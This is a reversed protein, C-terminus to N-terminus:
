IGLRYGDGRVTLIYTPKQPDVEVIKRLEHIRWRALDRAEAGMVEYGQAEKVLTKYTVTRPAYRVLTVLYDFYIGSVPLYKNNLLAHRAHLDLSFPGKELFRTTETPPVAALASTPTADLGELQQLEKLLHQIQTVVERKRAPQELEDFISRVRDILAPPDIPKLLYDRAGLRVAQIASELSAHATLIFVPLTPYLRHIEALLEIGGMHPMNLDLFMLDVANQALIQIASLANESSQVQYGEKKLIFSLTLNLNKDDDVILINKPPM